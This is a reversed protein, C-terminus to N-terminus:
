FPHQEEAVVFTEVAERLTKATNRLETMADATEQSSSSSEKSVGGVEQMIDSIQGSVDVQESAAKTIAEILEALRNSIQEIQFLKEHADDALQSGLVVKSIADNMRNSVNKIETQINTILTKIQKTSSSSNEALRQVEEAVIAFGHGADGAMAAQISANLALISTRESFDNIIQIVNSIEMSSESLRKISRATENVEERIEKMAATNKQVAETGERANSRARESIEASKKANDAVNKISAVMIGITNIADEVKRAQEITKNALSITQQSVEESTTDVSTTAVKVQRIIESFQEAMVNFSDAIAGFMDETVEARGRLDGESFSSIEELLKMISEQRSDQEGQSQVLMEVGTLSSNLSEAVAALEDHSTITARATMNGAAVEKLTNLINKTQRLLNRSFITVFFIGLLTIGIFTGLALNIFMGILAEKHEIASSEHDKATKQLAKIMPKVNSVKEQCAAFRLKLDASTALLQSFWKDFEALADVLKKPPLSATFSVQVANQLSSLSAKVLAASEDSEKLLYGQYMIKLQNYKNSILLSEQTNTLINLANLIDKLKAFLGYDNNAQFDLVEIAKLFDSLYANVAEMTQAIEKKDESASALQQIEYLTQYVEGAQQVFPEMFSNKTEQLGLTKYNLLFDKELGQMTLLSKEVSFAYDSITQEKRIQENAKKLSYQEPMQPAFLVALIVLLAGLAPATLFALLLKSRIGLGGKSKALLREKGKPKKTTSAM